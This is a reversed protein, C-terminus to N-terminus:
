IGRVHTANKDHAVGTVGPFSKTQHVDLVELDQNKYLTQRQGKTLLLYIEITLM